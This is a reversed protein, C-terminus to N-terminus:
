ISSRRQAQSNQVGAREFEQATNGLLSDIVWCGRTHPTSHRCHHLLHSDKCGAEELADGLGPMDEFRQTEYISQALKVIAGDRWSQWAPDIAIRRFPNGFIDRLLDAQVARASDIKQKDMTQWQGTCALAEAANKACLEAAEVAEDAAEPALEAADAAVDHEDVNFAARDDIDLLAECPYGLFACEVACTILSAQCVDADRLNGDLSAVFSVLRYVMCHANIVHVVSVQGAVHTELVDLAYELVDEGQPCPFVRRLDSMEADEDCMASCEALLREAAAILHTWGQLHLQRCCAVAFLRCKRNCGTGRLFELMAQPDTSTQWQWEPMSDRLGGPSPAARDIAALAEVVADYVNRSAHQMTHVLAGVAPAAAAGLKGLANAAAIGVKSDTHDLADVLAPIAKDPLGLESLAGAVRICLRADTTHLAELLIPIAAAGIGRL